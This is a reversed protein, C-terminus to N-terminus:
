DMTIDIVHEIKSLEVNTGNLNIFEKTMSLIIGSVEFQMGNQRYIMIYNRGVSLNVKNGEENKICVKKM